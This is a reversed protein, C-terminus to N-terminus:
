KENKPFQFIFKEFKYKMIQIKQFIFIIHENKMKRRISLHIISILIFWKENKLIAFFQIVRYHFNFTKM